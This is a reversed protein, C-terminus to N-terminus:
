TEVGVMITWETVQAASLSGGGSKLSMYGYEGLPSTPDQAVAVFGFTPSNPRQDQRVEPTM